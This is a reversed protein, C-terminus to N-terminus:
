DSMFNNEQEDLRYHCFLFLKFLLSLLCIHPKLAILAEVKFLQLHKLSIAEYFMSWYQLHLTCLYIYISIRQSKHM